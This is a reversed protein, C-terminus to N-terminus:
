PEVRLGPRALIAEGGFVERARDLAARADADAQIHTLVLGSAAGARAVHPV